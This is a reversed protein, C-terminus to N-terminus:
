KFFAAYRELLAAIEDLTLLENNNIISMGSLTDRTEIM